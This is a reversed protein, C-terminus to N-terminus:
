DDNTKRLILKSKETKIPLSILNQGPQNYIAQFQEGCINFDSMNIKNNQISGCKKFETLTEVQSVRSFEPTHLIQLILEDTIFINNDIKEQLRGIIKTELYRDETLKAFQRNPSKPDNKVSLFGGTKTSLAYSKTNYERDAILDGSTNRIFKASHIMPEQNQDSEIESTVDWVGEFWDPYILDDKLGPRKISSPLRWDPWISKREYLKSPQFNNIELSSEALTPVTYTFVILISILFFFFKQRM